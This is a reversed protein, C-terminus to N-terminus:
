LCRKAVAAFIEIKFLSHTTTLQYFLCFLNIISLIMKRLKQDIHFFGFLNRLSLPWKDRVYVGKEAKSQFFIELIVFSLNSKFMNYQRSVM